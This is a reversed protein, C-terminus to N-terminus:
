RQDSRLQEFTSPQRSSVPHGNKKAKEVYSLNSKLLDVSVQAQNATISDNNVLIEVSRCLRDAENIQYMLERIAVDTGPNPNPLSSTPPPGGVTTTLVTSTPLPMTATVATTVPTQPLQSFLHPKRLPTNNPITPDPGRVFTSRGTYSLTSTTVSPWVPSALSVTSTPKMDSGPYLQRRVSFYSSDETLTSSIPGPPVSRTLSTSTRDSITRLRHQLPRLDYGYDTYM